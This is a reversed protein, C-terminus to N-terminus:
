DVGLGGGVKSTKTPMFFLYNFKFGNLQFGCTIQDLKIYPVGEIVGDHVDNGDCELLKYHSSSFLM